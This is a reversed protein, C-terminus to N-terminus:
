KSHGSLSRAMQLQDRLQPLRKEAFARIEPDTVTKSAKEFASVDKEQAAIMRKLYARDFQDGTEKMTKADLTAQDLIVGKKITLDKLEIDTKTQSDLVGQAFQKVDPSTAKEVAQQSLDITALGGETAKVCFERDAKAVSQSTPQFASAISVAMVLGAIFSVHYM